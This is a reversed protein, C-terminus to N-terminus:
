FGERGVHWTVGVDFQGSAAFDFEPVIWSFIQSAYCSNSYYTGVVILFKPRYYIINRIVSRWGGM